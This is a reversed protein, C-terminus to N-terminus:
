AVGKFTVHIRPYLSFYRMAKIESIQCDDYFIIGNVSDAVQKIVNDLDPRNIPRLSGDLAAQRELKKFKSPIPAYVFIEMYVPGELKDKGAMAQMAINAIFDSNEKTKKPTYAFGKCTVRARAKGHPKGHIILNISM